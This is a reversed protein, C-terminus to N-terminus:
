VEYMKRQKEKIFKWEDRYLIWSYDAIVHIEWRDQYHRREEEQINKYFREGQENSYKDSKESSLDNHTKLFHIKLVFKVTQTKM